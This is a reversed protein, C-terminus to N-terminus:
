HTAPELSTRPGHSARPSIIRRAVIWDEGLQRRDILVMSLGYGLLGAALGVCMWTINAGFVDVIMLYCGAAVLGSVAPGVLGRLMPLPHCGTARAPLLLM